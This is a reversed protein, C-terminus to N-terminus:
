PRASRKALGAPVDQAPRPAIAGVLMAYKVRVTSASRFFSVLERWPGEIRALGALSAVVTGVDSRGDLVLLGGLLLIGVAGAASIVSLALKSSLKLAFIRRRTDFIRRFDAMVEDDLRALDSDSIRDSADRLTQAREKVRRNIRGQVALVIGAQPLVVALALLGLWPQSVLIFAVVSLLTGLQVLPSAIAIGAFSGVIEAEAALMTVLTGRKPGAGAAHGQVHNAYLRERILRVVREGVLAQGLNLAFKLSASLLVVALLAACLWALRQREGGEVLTNVVLQQLKLPAAALAAVLTALAILGLQERGSVRWAARYLEGM